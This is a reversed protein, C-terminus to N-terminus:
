RRHRTCPPAWAGSIGDRSFSNIGHQEGRGSDSARWRMRSRRIRGVVAEAMLNQRESSIKVFKYLNLLSFIYQYKSSFQTLVVALEMSARAFWSYLHPKTVSMPASCTGLPRFSSMMRIIEALFFSGSNMSSHRSFAYRCHSVM